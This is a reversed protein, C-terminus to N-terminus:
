KALVFNYYLVLLGILAAPIVRLGPAPEIEVEVKGWAIIITLLGGAMVCIRRLVEDDTTLGFSLIALALLLLAAFVLHHGYAMLLALGLAPQADSSEYVRPTAQPVILPARKEAAALEDIVNALPDDNPLSAVFTQQCKRCRVQKGLIQPSVVFTAACGPCSITESM